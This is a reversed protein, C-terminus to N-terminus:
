GVFEKPPKPFEGDVPRWLHLCKPHRNVYDEKAPHYQVVTDTDDWFLNKIKCMQDWTPMVIKGENHITVSVHEWLEDSAICFAFSMPGLHIHFIGNNGDAATSKMNGTKLRKEEPVKFM